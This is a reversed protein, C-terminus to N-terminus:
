FILIRYLRSISTFTMRWFHSIFCRIKKHHSKLIYAIPIYALVFVTMLMKTIKPTKKVTINKIILFNSHFNSHLTIKFIM